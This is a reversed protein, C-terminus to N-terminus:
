LVKSALVFKFEGMEPSAWTLRLPLDKGHEIQVKDFSSAMVKVMSLLQDMAFRSTLESDDNQTVEVEEVVVANGADGEGSFTLQKPSSTLIFTDESVTGVDKVIDAFDSSDMIAKTEFEINPRKGGRADELLNLMRIAFKKKGWGVSLTAMNEIISFTISDNVKARKIVNLLEDSRINLKIEGEVEYSEFVERPFTVDIFSIGSPDLGMYNIGDQNAIFTVEEMLSTIGSLASKFEKTGKITATLNSM